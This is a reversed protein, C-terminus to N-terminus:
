NPPRKSNGSPHSVYWVPALAVGLDEFALPSCAGIDPYELVAAAGPCLHRFYRADAGWIASPCPTCPRHGLRRGSVGQWSSSAIGLQLRPSPHNNAVALYWPGGDVVVSRGFDMVHDRLVTKWRELLFSFRWSRGPLCLFWIVRAVIQAPGDSQWSDLAILSLALWCLAMGILRCCDVSGSAGHGTLLVAVLM